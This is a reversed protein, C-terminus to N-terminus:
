PGYKRFWVPITYQVHTKNGNETGQLMRDVYKAAAMDTDKWGNEQTHVNITRGNEDWEYNVYVVSYSNGDLMLPTSLAVVSDLRKDWELKGWVLKGKIYDIELLVGRVQVGKAIKFTGSLSDAGQACAAGLFLFSMCILFFNRMPMLHIVRIVRFSVAIRCIMLCDGQMGCTQLWAVLTLKVHGGNSFKWSATPSNLRVRDLQLRAM